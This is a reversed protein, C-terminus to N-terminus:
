LRTINSKLSRNYGAVKRKAYKRVIKYVAKGQVYILGDRIRIGERTMYAIFGNSYGGVGRM